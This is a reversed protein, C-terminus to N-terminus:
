LCVLSEYRLTELVMDDEEVKRLLGNLPEDFAHNAASLFPPFEDEILSVLYRM